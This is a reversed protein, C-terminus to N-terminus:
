TVLDYFIVAHSVEMTDTVNRVVCPLEVNWGAIARQYTRNNRQFQPKQGVVTFFLKFIHKRPNIFNLKQVVATVYSM